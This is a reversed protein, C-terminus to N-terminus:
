GQHSSGASPPGLGPTKPPGQLIHCCAPRHPRCLPRWSHPSPTPASPSAVLDPRAGPPATLQSAEGPGAQGGQASHPRAVCKQHCVGHQEGSRRFPVRQEREGSATGPVRLPLQTPFSFAEACSVPDVARGEEPSVGGAILHPPGAELGTGASGSRQAGKAKGM